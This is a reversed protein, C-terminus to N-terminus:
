FVQVRPKLGAEEIHAYKKPKGVTKKSTFCRDCVPLILVYEGSKNMIRKIETTLSNLSHQKLEGLFASYQIRELGYDTLLKILKNRLDNDTVDYIVIYRVKVV